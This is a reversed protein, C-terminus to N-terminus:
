TAAGWPHFSKLEMNSDIDQGRTPGQELAGLGLASGLATGLASGLAYTRVGEPFGIVTCM